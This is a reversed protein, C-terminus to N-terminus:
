DLFRSASEKSPVPCSQYKGFIRYRSKAIIHYLGDRLKKPIFIFIYLLKWIGHLEKLIKLVATSDLFFDKGDSYVLGNQYDEPLGAKQLFHKGTKSQLQAFHFKEHKDHRIVFRVSFHCLKCIGDFLIINQETQAM